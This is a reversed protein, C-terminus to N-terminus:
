KTVTLHQYRVRCVVAWLADVRHGRGHGRLVSVGPFHASEGHISQSWPWPSSSSTSVRRLERQAGHGGRARRHRRQEPLLPPDAVVTAFAKRDTLSSIGMSFRPTSSRSSSGRVSSGSRPSRRRRVARRTGRGPHHVGRADAPDARDHHALARDGDRDGQRRPLTDRTLPSALYLGLMGTRRDTCLIEPASSRSSCARRAPERLRPVRRLDAPHRRSADPRQRHDDDPLFSSSASTCSRPCTPSSCSGSRCCRRGRRGACGSRGSSATFRSPASRAACAGAPATTAATGM